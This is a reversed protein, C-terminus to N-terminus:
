WRWRVGVIGTALDHVHHEVSAGTLVIPGGSRVGEIESYWEAFLPVDEPVFQVSIHMDRLLGLTGREWNTSPITAGVVDFGYEILISEGSQLARPLVMEAVMLEYEKAYSVGGVSVNRMGEICIDVGGEYGFCLPYRDIGDRHARLSERVVHTSETRDPRLQLCDHMSVRELGDDWSLGLQAVLDDIVKGEEVLESLSSDPNKRYVPGM